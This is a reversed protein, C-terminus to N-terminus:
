GRTIFLLLTFIVPVAVLAPIYLGPIGFAAISLGWLILAFAIITLILPAPNKGKAAPKEAAKTIGPQAAAPAALLATDIKSM